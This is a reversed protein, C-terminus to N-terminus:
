EEDDGYYEKVWEKAMDQYKKPLEYCDDYTLYGLEVCPDRLQKHWSSGRNITEMWSGVVAAELKRLRKVEALLKPADALLAMDPRCINMAIIRRVIGGEAKALEITWPAPTHGEYKDVDIMIEGWLGYMCRDM